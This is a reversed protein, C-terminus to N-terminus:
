TPEWSASSRRSSMGGRPPRDGALLGRRGHQLRREPLSSERSRSIALRGLLQQVARFALSDRFFWTEPVVLDELLEQFEAPDSVLRRLYDQPSDAGSASARQACPM